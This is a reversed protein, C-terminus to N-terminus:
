ETASAPKLWNDLDVAAEESKPYWRMMPYFMPSASITVTHGHEDNAAKGTTGTASELKASGMASYFVFYGGLGDPVFALFKTNNLIRLEHSLDHMNKRVTVEMKNNFGGGGANTEYTVEGTEEEIDWATLKGSLSAFCTSKFEAKDPDVDTKPDPKTVLDAVLALYMRTGTGSFSEECAGSADALVSKLTCAM